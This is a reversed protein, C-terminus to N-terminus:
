GKAPKFTKLRVWETRAPSYQTAKYHVKVEYRLTHQQLKLRYEKGDKECYLHNWRPCQRWQPNQQVIKQAANLVKESPM